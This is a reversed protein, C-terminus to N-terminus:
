WGDCDGVPNWEYKDVPNGEGVPTRGCVNSDDAEILVSSVLVVSFWSFRNFSWLFAVIELTIGLYNLYNMKLVYYYTLCM